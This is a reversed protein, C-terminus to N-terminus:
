AASAKQQPPPDLVMRKADHIVVLAMIAVFVWYFYVTEYQGIAFAVLFATYAVVREMAYSKYNTSRGARRAFVVRLGTNILGLVIVLIAPVAPALGYAAVVILLFGYCIGDTIADFLEGFASSCNFWKAFRGDLKDFLGCIILAVAAIQMHGHHVAWLFPPLTFFRSGTVINAPNLKPVVRAPASAITNASM